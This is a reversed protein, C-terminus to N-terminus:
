PNYHMENEQVCLSVNPLILDQKTTEYESHNEFKKLYKMIKIIENM